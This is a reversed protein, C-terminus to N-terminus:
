YLYLPCLALVLLLSMLFPTLKMIRIRQSTLFFLFSGLSSVSLGCWNLQGTILEYAIYIYAQKHIFSDGSQCM